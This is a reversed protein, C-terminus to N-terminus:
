KSKGLSPYISFVYMSNRWYGFIIVACLVTLPIGLGPSKAVYLDFLLINISIPTLIAIGVLAFVGSLLMLGGAIELLKVIRLIGTPGMAKMYDQIAESQTSPDPMPIFELFYNSGFVVFVLGVLTRCAVTVWYM